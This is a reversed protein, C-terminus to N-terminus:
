PLFMRIGVRASRPLGTTLVPTRGVDYISDFLNEVAFFASISRAITRGAFIDVVTARRLTFVNQDDEFQPGTVRLQASATWPQRGYRVGAAANYSPVQPVRNGNLSTNGTFHVRTIGTSADLSVGSTVRLNGELELGNAQVRDANARQRIIQTPTSSLTIATIADDLRNWFGTIRASAHGTGVLVGLDGGTMREPDLAENARTLTSGASFNRYLENLTPARFGHYVAGRVTVLENIRYAAAARPNFAQSSKTSGTQNSKVRWTDGHAGFVLTLRENAQWTDQVFGSWRRDDGGAATTALPLGQAFPTEISRGKVYRGEAGVLVTHTGWARLWQGGGGGFDTPVHQDRIFTEATRLANVTTFTQNYRQTGGWGRVTFVGGALRGTTDLTAHKSDTSNISLPTGNDRDESFVNGSIDFRWGTSTQYGAFGQASRHTSGLNTDVPGRPAIGPDQKEAIPIYGDTTFWEGAGSYRWDGARAGGFLSVSGTGLSGGEVLVRGVPRNPRVTLVQIVGGLADAGYLDSGSGRNVEIRDIAAQPVKDWFVWGGFADNLPMGDALVLSRSPSTGGVGRLAVGQATPNANRSSTRRFLTFGPVAKLADDITMPASTLLDNSSIVTVTSTPDVRAVEGRSSTVNVSEFLPAPELTVEVTRVGAAASTTSLAFGPVAIVVTRATDATVPVEFRGNADTQTEAVINGSIEIRVAANPVSAGSPDTVRGTLLDPSQAALPASTLAAIVLAFLAAPIRTM